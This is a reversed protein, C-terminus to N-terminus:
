YIDCYNGLLMCQRDSRYKSPVACHRTWEDDSKECRGKFHEHIKELNKPKRDDKHDIVKVAAISRYM